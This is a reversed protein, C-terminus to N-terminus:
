KSPIYNSFRILFKIPEPFIPMPLRTWGSIIKLEEIKYLLEM